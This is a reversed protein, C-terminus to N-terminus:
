GKIWYEFCFQEEQHKVCPFTLYTQNMRYYDALYMEVAYVQTKAMCYNVSEEKDGRLQELQTDLALLRDAVSQLKSDYAHATAIWKEANRKNYVDFLANEQKRGEIWWSPRCITQGEVAGKWYQWNELRANLGDEIQIAKTCEASKPWGTMIDLFLAELKNTPALGFSVDGPLSNARMTNQLHQSMDMNNDRLTRAEEALDMLQNLIKDYAEDNPDDMVYDRAKPANAELKSYLAPYKQKLFNEAQKPNSNAMAMFTRADAQSINWKKAYADALVNMMQEETATELNLGSSMIVQMTEEQSLMLGQKSAQEMYDRQQAQQNQRKTQAQRMKNQLKMQEGQLNLHFTEIGVVYEAVANKRMYAAKAEPSMLDAVTPLMPRKRVAEAMTSIKIPTGEAPVEYDPTIYSMIEHDYEEQAMSPMALLMGAMALYLIRKM